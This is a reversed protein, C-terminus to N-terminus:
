KTKILAHKKKGASLKVTDDNGFHDLTVTLDLDSIKEDNLRAGGGKILRRAEGNSSVLGSDKFLNAVPIGQQLVGKDVEHVPLADGISGEEFTKRATEEAEEAAKDGHIIKTAENALIKKAENIEAGKLKELRAIEDLPMETFLRLLRGVDADECNRWFQWYDYPALMESKLWVAGNATKGMKEGSATTLVLMSTTSPPKPSSAATTM